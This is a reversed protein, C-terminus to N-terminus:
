NGFRDYLGKRMQKLIESRIECDAPCSEFYPCVSCATEMLYWVEFTLGGKLFDSLLKASDLNSM